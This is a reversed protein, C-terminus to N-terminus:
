LYDVMNCIIKLKVWIIKYGKLNPGLEKLQIKKLNNKWFKDENPKKRDSTISMRKIAIQKQL